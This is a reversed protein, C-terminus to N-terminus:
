VVKEGGAPYEADTRKRYKMGRFFMFLNFFLLAGIFLTFGGIKTSLEEFLRKYSDLDYGIYLWHLGIGFGFLFFGVEFLQNTAVALNERGGFIIRM